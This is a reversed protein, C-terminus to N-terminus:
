LRFKNAPGGLATLLSSISFKNPLQDSNTKSLFEGGSQSSSAVFSNALYPSFASCAKYKIVGLIDDM